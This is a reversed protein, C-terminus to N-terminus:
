EIAAYKYGQPNLSQWRWTDAIMENLGRESKWGLEREAKAPDAWSEAIDGQRRCVVKYPISTGTIREFAQIMELVSYGIGTGLNWINVGNKNKIAELAKLHGEALDVVHIYDRIGTGDTTPYDDGYVSLNPLKGIAVQSIYPMLNNPTGQPDEGLLGSQHAGIPNFYRLLALSWRPDSEALDKLIEETMLKSRGYPNTPRATPFSECIPMKTPKGYVTASSSFVLKYIGARAMAKCLTITGSVNNDFYKLPQLSSEGVAKLGAFHMVADIKHKSFLEDLLDSDRIDGEIFLPTKGCINKVRHLSNRSSNGLNDIVVVEFGATLLALTTHSGIFGAGGTVLIKSTM